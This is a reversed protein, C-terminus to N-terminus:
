SAYFFLEPWIRTDIENNLTGQCLAYVCKPLRDKLCRLGLESKVKELSRTLHSRFRKLIPKLKRKKRQQRGCRPFSPLFIRSRTHALTHTHTGTNTQRDKGLCISSMDEPNIGPADISNCTGTGRISGDRNNNGEQTPKWFNNEKKVKTGPQFVLWIRNIRWLFYTINILSEFHLIRYIKLFGTTEFYMCSNCLKYKWSLNEQM